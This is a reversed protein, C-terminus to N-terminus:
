PSELSPFGPLDIMGASTVRAHQGVENVSLVAMHPVARSMFARLVRRLPAACLLVPQKNGSLQREAERAVTTVFRELEQAPLLASQLGERPRSAALMYGELQPAITLVNLEGNKDVLREYLAAGLRERVREVLDDANKNSRGADVLVELITELNRISVQERLLLQLVRQIDSYSLVQPVLEDVLSGLGARKKEILRETEARTLFEPAYRRALESLHTLLVTDPEVLTYGATRAQARQAVEIWLAKLGYTPEKTARGELVLTAGGPNIALLKDFELEGAAIVAGQVCVQYTGSALKKDAHVNLSPLAFGYDKAFQKRLNEIRLSLTSTAALVHAALDASLRLEFADTNMLAYVDNSDSDQGSLLDQQSDEDANTKGRLKRYSFWAAAAFACFLVMLPILPLGPMMALFLTVLAVVVLTKPYASVQRGLEPGLRADTAARTIIIGAAVAIILSPIQTVIGDGVTLLTYHHLADGWSQGKQLIGVSLGGIINIAIIVIGAIADGKVFKSAGDMAGYFNSERELQSRRRKAEEQDIIGMNLDADISMQKGPLSDLTFRAAVEAVRQAGSTVVVYQVVVLILFIVFGIVYNGGVVHTGVAAIVLGADGDTLILRTASINLALRFLTTMLLLSPFTSFSLPKDIDFTVLLVMLAVAFNTLLLLDLLWTPIPTFLVLLIGIVAVALLLDSGESLMRSLLPKM